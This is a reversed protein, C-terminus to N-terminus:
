RGQLGLAPKLELASSLVDTEEGEEQGKDRTRERGGGVRGWRGAKRQEGGRRGAEKGIKGKM